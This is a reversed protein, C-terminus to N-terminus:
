RPPPARGAPEPVSCARTDPHSLCASDLAAGRSAVNEDCPIGVLKLLREIANAALLAPTNGERVCFAKLCAYLAVELTRVEDDRALMGLPGSSCTGSPEELQELLAEVLQAKTLKEHEDARTSACLAALKSLADRKSGMSLEADRIAGILRMYHHPNPSPGDEPDDFPSGAILNDAKVKISVGSAMVRVPYRGDVPRNLVEACQGNLEPKKALGSITVAAGTPFLPEQEPEPAPAPAPKEASTRTFKRAMLREQATFIDSPKAQALAEKVRLRHGLKKFGIAALKPLLAEDDGALALDRLARLDVGTLALEQLILSIQFCNDRLMNADVTGPATSDPMHVPLQADCSM